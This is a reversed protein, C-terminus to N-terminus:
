PFRMRAAPSGGHCGSGLTTTVAGAGTVARATMRGCLGVLCRRLGACADAERGAPWGAAMLLVGDRRQDRSVASASPSEQGLWVDSLACALSHM